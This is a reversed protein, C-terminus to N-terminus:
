MLVPEKPPAGEVPEISTIEQRRLQALTANWTETIL